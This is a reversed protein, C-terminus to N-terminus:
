LLLLTLPYALMYNTGWEDNITYPFNKSRIIKAGYTSDHINKQECIALLFGLFHFHHNRIKFKRNDWSEKFLAHNSPIFSSPNKRRHCWLVVKPQMYKPVTHSLNQHFGNWKVKDGGRGWFVISFLVRTPNGEWGSGCDAYKVPRFIGFHHVCRVASSLSTITETATEVGEGGTKYM